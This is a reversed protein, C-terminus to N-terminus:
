KRDPKNVPQTNKEIIKAHNRHELIMEWYSCFTKMLLCHQQEFLEIMDKAKLPPTGGFSYSVGKTQKTKKVEVGDEFTLYDFSSENYGLRKIFNTHGHELSPPVRHHAMNRYNGTKESYEDSGVDQINELFIKKVNWHDIRKELEKKTIKRDDPLDDKYGSIKIFLNAQHCLHTACFIIRDRISQPQNLCFYFPLELFYYALEFQESESYKPFIYKSWIETADIEHSFRNISNIIERTYDEEMNDYFLGMTYNKDTVYDEFSILPTSEFEETTYFNWYKRYADVQLDNNM